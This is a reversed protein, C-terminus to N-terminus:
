AEFLMKPTRTERFQSSALTYAALIFCPIQVHEVLTNGNFMLLPMTLFQLYLGLKIFYDPSNRIPKRFYSLAFLMIMMGVLLLGVLGTKLVIDAWGIDASYLAKVYPWGWKYKEEYEPTHIVSGYSLTNRLETSIRDEHLYGYGFIANREVVMVIREELLLLRGTFTDANKGVSTDTSVGMTIISLGSLMRSFVKDAMGSAISLILIFASVVIVPMTANGRLKKERALIFIMLLSVLFVSFYIGRTYTEAIVFLLLLMYVYSHKAIKVGSLLRASIIWFYILCIPLFIPLYRMTSGYERYLGHLIQMGLLSQVVALFLLIFTIVYLANLLFTLSQRDTTFVRLFVFFSLYGIILERSVKIIDILGYSNVLLSWVLCFLMWGVFIKLTLVYSPSSISVQKQRIFVRLYLILLLIVGFDWTKQNLVVRPLLDFGQSMVIFAILTQYRPKLALFGAIGLVGIAIMYYFM